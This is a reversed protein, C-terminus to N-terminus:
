QKLKAGTVIKNVPKQKTDFDDKIFLRDNWFKKGAIM